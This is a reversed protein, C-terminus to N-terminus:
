DEKLEIERAARKEARVKKAEKNAEKRIFTM